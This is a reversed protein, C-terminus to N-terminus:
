GWCCPRWGCRAPTAPRRRSRPAMRRSVLSGAAPGDGSGDGLRAAPHCKRSRINAWAGTLGGGTTRSMTTRLQTTAGNIRYQVTFLSGNQANRGEFLTLTNGSGPVLTNRNFVFRAHYSIEASPTNDTLYSAQNNRKGAM